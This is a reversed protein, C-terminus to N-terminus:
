LCLNIQASKSLEATAKLIAQHCRQNRRHTTSAKVPLLTQTFNKELQQSM